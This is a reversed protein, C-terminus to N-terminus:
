LYKYEPPVKFDKKTHDKQNAILNKVPLEVVQTAFLKAGQNRYIIRNFSDKHPTFALSDGFFGINCIVVNCMVLRAIAESIAFFSNTDQNLALIIIHQVRGKYITFRDIDYFDACIAFGIKGFENTNILYINNDPVFEKTSGNISNYEQITTKEINAPYKKGLLAITSSYSKLVTNWNNPVIMIAKNKIEDGNIQWELGAFVVCNIDTALNKLKEIYPNPVTLEPLIIIDPKSHHNNMKHFGKLIEQWIYEQIEPKIELTIESTPGWAAMNDFNIQIYGVKLVDKKNSDLNDAEERNSNNLIDTISFLNKPILFREEKNIKLKNNELYKISQEIYNTLKEVSAIKFDLNEDYENEGRYLRSLYEMERNKKSLCAKIIEYSISSIHHEELNKIFYNSYLLQKSPLHFRQPMNLDKTILQYLLIGIGYIFQKEKNNNSFNKFNPSYRNDNILINKVNNITIDNNADICINYPFQQM